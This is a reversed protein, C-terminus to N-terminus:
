ADAPIRPLSNNADPGPKIRGPVGPKIRGPVSFEADELDSIIGLSTTLQNSFCFLGVAKKSCKDKILRM